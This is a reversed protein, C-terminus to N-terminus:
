EPQLTQRGKAVDAAPTVAPDAGDRDRSRDADLETRIASCLADRQLSLFRRAAAETPHFPDSVVGDKRRFNATNGLNERITAATFGPVFSCQGGLRAFAAEINDQALQRQAIVNEKFPPATTMFICPLDPPLDALFAAADELAAASSDAWRETANGMLFMVLLQPDYYGEELVRALPSKGATCFQFQAGRGIQVYPNEGPSLTGYVGANVGWKPDVDCIAGRSSNSRGTWSRISSSRVGIVGTTTGAALGCSGAIDNFLDVFAAGAGFSLQSDGLILVDPSGPAEAQAPVAIFATILAAAVQRFSAQMKRNWTRCGYIAATDDDD